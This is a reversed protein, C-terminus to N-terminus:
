RAEYPIGSYNPLDIEIVPRNITPPESLKDGVQDAPIAGRFNGVNVGGNNHVNYDTPHDTQKKVYENAM